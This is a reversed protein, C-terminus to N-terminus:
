DVKVSLSAFLESMEILPAVKYLVVNVPSPSALTKEIHPPQALWNTIARLCGPHTRLVFLPLPSSLNFAAHDQSLFNHDIMMQKKFFGPNHRHFHASILATM